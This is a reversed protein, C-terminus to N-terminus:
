TDIKIQQEDAELSSIRCSQQVSPQMDNHSQDRYPRGLVPLDAWLMTRFDKSIRGKEMVASGNRRPQSNRTDHWEFSIVNYLCHCTARCANPGIDPEKYVIAILHNLVCGSTGAL